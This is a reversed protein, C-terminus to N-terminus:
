YSLSAALRDKSEQGFLCILLGSYCFERNKGNKEFSSGSNQWFYTKCVSVIELITRTITVAARETFHGRAVIRDFLEGGECMEMVIYVADKDEYAEKLTVINPHRPLHRMIEVERRVDDVDIETRLKSKSITKCAYEEGTELETCKYTVGFEGRGLEKGFEFKEHINDKSPNNLISITRLVISKRVPDVDYQPVFRGSRSSSSSGARKAPGSVCGGM